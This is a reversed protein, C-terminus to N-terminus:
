DKWKKRKGQRWCGLQSLITRGRRPRHSWKLIVPGQSCVVLKLHQSHTHVTGGLSRRRGPPTSAGLSPVFMELGTKLEVMFFPTMLNIIWSWLGACSRGKPSVYDRHCIESPSNRFVLVLAWSVTSWSAPSGPGMPWSVDAPTEYTISERGVKTKAMSTGLIDRMEAIHVDTNREGPLSRVQTRPERLCSMLLFQLSKWLNAEQDEASATM